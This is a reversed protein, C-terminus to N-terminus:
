FWQIYLLEYLAMHLRQTLILTCLQVYPLTYWKSNLLIHLPFSLLTDLFKGWGRKKQSYIKIATIVHYRACLSDFFLFVANDEVGIGGGGGM